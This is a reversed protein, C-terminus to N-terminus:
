SLKYEELTKYVAKKTTLVSSKLTFSDVPFNIKKFKINKLFDYFKEKEKVYKIRAITLHSMFREEKPFLKSLSSDIKKQLNELERSEVKLWIIRPNGRYTFYGIKEISAQFKEHSIKKLETKIRELTEEPIEGLFKLTLHLNEREILKGVFDKKRIQSQIKEIEPIINKPLDICIFTRTNEPM